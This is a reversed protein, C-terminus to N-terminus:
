GYERRGGWCMVLVWGDMAEEIVNSAGEFSGTYEATYEMWYGTFLQLLLLAKLM